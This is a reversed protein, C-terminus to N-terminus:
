KQTPPSLELTTRTSTSEEPVGTPSEFDLKYGDPIPSPHHGVHRNGVFPRQSTRPRTVRAERYIALADRCQFCVSAGEGLTQRLPTPLRPPVGAAHSRRWRARALVLPTRGTSSGNPQHAGTASATSTSASPPKWTPSVMLFPVAQKVNATTTTLEGSETTVQTSM